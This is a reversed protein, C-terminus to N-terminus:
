SIRGGQDAEGQNGGGLLALLSRAARARHSIRNKDEASIEAVTLSHGEPVFVPDYGFGFDGHPERAISGEFVGTARLEAGDPDFCVIDCIFNARRDEEDGLERLLKHVNDIDTADPGAWRASYIGPAGDLAAVALGSDDAMVWPAHNDRELYQQRVAAAKLRSNEYFTSGTEEPLEFGSPMPEVTVGRMLAAFERAKNANGTALIITLGRM